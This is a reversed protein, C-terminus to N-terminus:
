EEHLEPALRGPIRPQTASLKRSIEGLSAQDKGVEEHYEDDTNVRWLDHEAGLINEVAMMATLM